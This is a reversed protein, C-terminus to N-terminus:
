YLEQQLCQTGASHPIPELWLREVSRRRVTPPQQAAPAPTAPSAQRAPPDTKIVMGAQCTAALGMALVLALGPSLWHRSASRAPLTKM